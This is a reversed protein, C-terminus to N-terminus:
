PRPAFQLETIRWAGDEGLCARGAYAQVRGSRVYSGYIEVAAPGAPMLRPPAVTVVASNPGTSSTRLVELVQPHACGALHGVPRRHNLVEAVLRM